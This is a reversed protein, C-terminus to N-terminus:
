FFEVAAQKDISVTAHHSSRQEEMTYSQELRALWQTPVQALPDDGGDLWAGLRQMDEIVSGLMQSMRDQSQLSMMIKELDEQVVRSSHQLAQSAQAFDAGSNIMSRLVARASEEAQLTIEDDETDHQRVQKLLGRLREQASGVQNGMRIGAQRSQGALRRVEQAVVAFGDGSNGARTAEVSANLALLHTARSINQVERALLDMDQLTQAISQVGELMQDKLQVALRTSGLLTDLETRHQALLEDMGGPQLHLAQEHQGLSSDLHTIVNSFSDLLKQISAEAHSRAANVNRQWVPVVSRPLRLSVDAHHTTQNLHQRAAQRLLGLAAAALVAFALAAPWGAWAHVAAGAVACGAAQLATSWAFRRQAGAAPAPARLGTGPQAPSHNPSMSETSM